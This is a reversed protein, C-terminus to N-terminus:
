LVDAVAARVDQLMPVYPGKKTQEYLKKWILWIHEASIDHLAVAVSYLFAQAAAESNRVSFTDVNQMCFGCTSVAEAFDWDHLISFEPNPGCYCAELRHTLAENWWAEVLSPHTVLHLGEHMGARTLTQEYAFSAKSLVIFPCVEIATAALPVDTRRWWPFGSRRVWGTEGELSRITEVRGHPVNKDRPDCYVEIERPAEGAMDQDSLTLVKEYSQELQDCFGLVRARSTFGAETFGSPDRFDQNGLLVSPDSGPRVSVNFRKM